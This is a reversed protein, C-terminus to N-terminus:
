TGFLKAGVNRGSSFPEQSGSRGVLGELLLKQLM